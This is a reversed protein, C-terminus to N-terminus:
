VLTRSVITKLAEAVKNDESIEAISLGAQRVASLVAEEDLEINFVRLGRSRRDLFLRQRRNVNSITM